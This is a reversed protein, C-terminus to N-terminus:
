YRLGKTSPVTKLILKLLPINTAIGKLVVSDLYEYLKAIVDERNEGRMIIQAILSDYYPSVEKGPAAISIIEVDPHEPFM